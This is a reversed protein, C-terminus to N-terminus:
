APLDRPSDVLPHVEPETQPAFVLVAGLVALMHQHVIRLPFGALVLLVLGYAFPGRGPGFLNISATTVGLFLSWSLIAVTVPGAPAPHLALAPPALLCGAAYGAGALAGLLLAMRLREKGRETEGWGDSFAVFAAVGAGGLLLRGASLAAASVSEPVLTGQGSGLERQLSGLSWGITGVASSLAAASYLVAFARMSASGTVAFAHMAVLLLIMLALLTFGTAFAPGRETVMASFGLVALCLLCTSLFGNLGAPWIRFRVVRYAIHVLALFVIFFALFFTFNGARSLSAHIRDLLAPHLGASPDPLLRFFVAETLGAFALARLFAALLPSDLARPPM